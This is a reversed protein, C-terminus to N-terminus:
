NIYIKPSNTSQENVTGIVSSSKFGSVLLRDLIEDVKEPSVTFLLGGNTQGDFLLMQLDPDIKSDFVANSSYDKFNRWALSSIHGQECLHRTMISRFCPISHFTVNFDVNSAECIELAHAILGFGTVDTMASVETYSSLWEGPSNLKAMSKVVREYHKNSVAGNKYATTYIGNGVSKILIIKDGPKAGKNTKIRRQSAEGIVSLGLLPVPANITHGGTIIVGAEECKSNIGDVMEKPTPDGEDIQDFPFALIMTATTPSAGMAYIDSIANAASIEGAVFPNDVVPTQYDLSTVAYRGPTVTLVAADDSTSFGLIIDSRETKPIGSITRSLCARDAKCNCGGDKAYGTLPNVNNLLHDKYKRNIKKM